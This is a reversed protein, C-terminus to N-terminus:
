HKLRNPTLGLSSALERADAAIDLIAHEEIAEICAEIKERTQGARLCDLIHGAALRRTPSGGNVSQGILYALTQDSTEFWYM